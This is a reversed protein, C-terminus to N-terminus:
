KKKWTKLWPHGHRGHHGHCSFRGLSGSLRPWHALVGRAPAATTESLAKGKAARARRSALGLRHHMAIPHHQHPMVVTETGMTGPRDHHTAIPHHQAYPPGHHARPSGTIAADAGRSGHGHDGWAHGANYHSSVRQAASALLWMAVQRDPRCSRVLRNCDKARVAKSM